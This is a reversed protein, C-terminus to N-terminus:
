HLLVMWIASTAAEITSYPLLPIASKTTNNTMTTSRWENKWKEIASTRKRQVTYRVMYLKKVIGQDNMDLFSPLFASDPKENSLTIM